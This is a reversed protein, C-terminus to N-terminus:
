TPRWASGSCGCGTPSTSIGSRPTGTTRATCDRAAWIDNVLVDLHGHEARVRDALAAVQGPDTHDCPVPVGTGGLSDVLEATEEITEPRSYDSRTAGTRTTRGTCVVTAGAEGLATAIGRGAGRTAGAVLAVRGALANADLEWGM